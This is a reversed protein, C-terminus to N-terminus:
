NYINYEIRQFLLDAELRTRREKIMAHKLEGPGQRIVELYAVAFALPYQTLQKMAIYGVLDDISGLRPKTNRERAPQSRIQSSPGFVQQAIVREARVPQKISQNDPLMPRFMQAAPSAPFM